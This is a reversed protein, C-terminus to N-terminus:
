PLNVGVFYLLTLPGPQLKEVQGIKWKVNDDILWIMDSLDNAGDYAIIAIQSYEKFLAITTASMGLQQLSSPPVFVAPLPGIPELEPSAPGLLPRSPDALDTGGDLFMVPRGAGAILRQATALARPYNVM